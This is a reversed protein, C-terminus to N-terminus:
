FGAHGPTRPFPIVDRINSIGTLFMILREFGLGFGAHPVTGYRRLDAYWEMNNEDLGHERMNELLVELREERQSGGVIEGIGPVLVDMAAVTRDDDNRRMYFPKIARPYDHVIVPCRFHEETLFREHESQLAIDLGLPHEFDRGSKELIGLADAFSVREFPREVLANLRALLGPDVFKGFMALDEECDELVFRVMARVFAEAEDMDGALDCFAMEPEIMWFESVHRSTNSPDARFTPGFTYVKSLACALTEAELQGSVTLFAPRGFFDGREKANPTTLQFMEGAGECDSTTIIPTHIYHFGRGQFHQHVALSLRSRVRFVAGLLNTRGRLHGIERLFELSHRKKQLPYTEDAPGVLEFGTAHLEWRQGAAPSPVL